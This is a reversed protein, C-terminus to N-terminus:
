KAHIVISGGGIAQTAGADESDGLQNDYIIEDTLKDWIKIRFKDIDGGGALQGDTATLMFGYDGEGNITGSGKFKANVGAIILWQYSTSHFNLSAVKFQFQTQGSPTSQGKKYKSVFGFNAKGTLSPDPTYAEAPSDIWGGGTVFGATPDYVVIYQFLSEGSDGDDDTVTLKITYVGPITYPHSGSVSGSGNAESVNGESTNSDDWDWVATHTDLIGPDTFGASASIETGVEVPDIPAIINGVMPAVNNVTVQANNTAMAGIGDTVRLSVMSTYDDYWNYAITPSTTSEDYVGDNDWDWEFLIISGDPDHSGTANFTIASGEESAYPGNADAIPPQNVGTIHISVTQVGIIQGTAEDIVEVTCVETEGPPADPLGVLGDGAQQPQRALRERM